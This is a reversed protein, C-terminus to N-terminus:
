LATLRWYQKQHLSIALQSGTQMLFSMEHPVFDNPHFRSPFDTCHLYKPVSLFSSNANTGLTWQTIELDFLMLQWKWLVNINGIRLLKMFFWNIVYDINHTDAKNLPCAELGYISDPICKSQVHQTTVNEAAIKSFNESASRCFFRNAGQLNYKLLKSM